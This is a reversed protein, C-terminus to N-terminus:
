HSAGPDQTERVHYGVLAVCVQAFRVDEHVSADKQLLRLLM